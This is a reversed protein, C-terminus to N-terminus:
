KERAYRPKQTIYAGGGPRWALRSRVNTGIDPRDGLDAAGCACKQPRPPVPLRAPNLNGHRLVHPNLDRRGCWAPDSLPAFGAVGLAVCRRGLVMCTVSVMESPRLRSNWTLTEAASRSALTTSRSASSLSRTWNRPK